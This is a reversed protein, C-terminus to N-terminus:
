WETVHSKDLLKSKICKTQCELNDFKKFGTQWWEDQLIKDLTNNYMNFKTEALDNWKKNHPYRLATWCCPYFEGTAKLVSGQKRYLM